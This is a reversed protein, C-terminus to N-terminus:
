VTFETRSIIHRRYVPDLECFYGSWGWVRVILNPYNEPHAEADLLVDRNIANLQLQHGGREIFYRVLQAVKAEGSPDRFVSDHLEMTLPGGNIIKRMDFKTFSAITSVPGDLRTTIAPSFSSSYPTYALRGDATAPCQEASWIYEMASGTGARWIDGRANPKGNLYSSFAEMLECGIADAADDNNGMKPASLLKNRLPAWGVFNADLAALLDDKSIERTDFVLMKVAALADAANAIGAGHCGYNNYKAVDDTLDRGHELCGDVMISLLPAPSCHERQHKAIEADCFARIENKAAELLADFTECDTLHAHIANNVALPFNVTGRTPVDAACNPVIYEWCAAVTYDYADQPEYGLAILGPIVVDDNCYQPFGLGQRTLKTGYEFREPPTKKGCRLNIKPDILSLELSAQMCTHSLENFMDRGDMAFGGLVMSQGNDGQQVGFYIDTDFNLEIFFLETIVLLDEPTVGRALDAKYYPYMYQDFRGLTTHPHDACRLSYLLIAQFLCAQHYTVAGKHPVVALADALVRNDAAEAAARYRDALTLISDICLIVSKLFRNKGGDAQLKALTETRIADLGRSIVSAYDPTVNGFVGYEARDPRAAHWDPTKKITRHFGFIDQEGFIYPQEEAMMKSFVTAVFMPDSLELSIDSLDFTVDRRANRYEKKKLLSLMESVAQTM